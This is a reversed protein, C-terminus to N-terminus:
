APTPRRAAWGEFPWPTSRARCTSSRPSTSCRTSRRCRDRRPRRRSASAPRNERYFATAEDGGNGQRMSEARVEAYRQWRQREDLIQNKIRDRNRNINEDSFDFNERLNKALTDLGVKEAVWATAKVLKEIAASFTRAIWATFDWFM